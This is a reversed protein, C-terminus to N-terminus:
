GQGALQSAYLRAKRVYVDVGAAIEAAEEDTIARIVRGPSGVVLSRDPIAKGEAILAGAAVICERGVVAGNLIIAQIGVLSGEGITCGHLMAQHGVTVAAGVVVPYGPDTHLVAGDQVNSRPGLTIPENDGRLVANFWISAESELVVTGIVAASPAIYHGAGRLEVHRPGLTYLMRNELALAGGLRPPRARIIASETGSGM